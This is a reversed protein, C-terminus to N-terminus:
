EGPPEAEESGSSVPEDSRPQAGAGSAGRGRLARVLIWAGAILLAAGAIYAFDGGALLFSLGIVALIGGPILPWWHRRDQAYVVLFPIGIALLVYATVLNDSFRGLEGLAIVGAVALLIYAPILAWRRSRHRLGVVLFPLAIALQVYLAVAEGRLVESPVLAILVAVALLVYAALLILGDSRDALYAVLAGLGALALFAVWVWPSLEVLQSVLSLAGILILVGGLVGSRIATKSSM